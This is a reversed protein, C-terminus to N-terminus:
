GKKLNLFWKEFTKVFFSLAVIVYILEIFLGWFALITLNSSFFNETVRDGLDRIFIFPIKLICTIGVLFLIDTLIKLKMKGDSKKLFSSLEYLENYFKRFGNEKIKISKYNLGHKKAIEKVIDKMKGFSKIVEKDSLKSCDIQNIYFLMERELEEKELFSLHKRLSRLFEKRNM